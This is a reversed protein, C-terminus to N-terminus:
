WPCRLPLPVLSECTGGCYQCNGLGLGPEFPDGVGFWLHFCVCVHVHAPFCIFTHRLLKLSVPAVVASVTADEKITYADSRLVFLDSTTKVPAFRTRPVV